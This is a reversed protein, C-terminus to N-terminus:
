SSSNLKNVETQTRAYGVRATTGNFMNTTNSVKTLDFSGLDVEELKTNRFMSSMNTVKSTDFRTLDVSKVSSGEFMGSMNTVNDTNISLVDINDSTTNKFMGSMDTVNTNNSFVGKVGTGMFMDKYSNISIGKIVKPIEVYEDNGIYKFQGNLFGSFDSDKALEYLPQFTLGSPK